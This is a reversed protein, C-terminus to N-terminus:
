RMEKHTSLHDIYKIIELVPLSMNTVDLKHDPIDKGHVNQDCCKRDRYFKIAYERFRQCEKCNEKILRSDM